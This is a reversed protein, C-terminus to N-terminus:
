LDVEKRWCTNNQIHNSSVPNESLALIESREVFVKRSCAGLLFWALEGVSAYLWLTFHNLKKFDLLRLGHLEDTLLWTAAKGKKGKWDGLEFLICGM